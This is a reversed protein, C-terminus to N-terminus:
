LDCYPAMISSCYHLTSLHVTSIMNINESLIGYNSSKVRIIQTRPPPWIINSYAAANTNNTGIVHHNNGSWLNLQLFVDFARLDFGLNAFTYRLHLFHWQVSIKHQSWQIIFAWMLSELLAPTRRHLSISSQSPQYWDTGAFTGCSYFIKRYRSIAAQNVIIVSLRCYVFRIEWFRCLVYYLLLRPAPTDCYVRTM